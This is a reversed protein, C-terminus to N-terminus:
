GVIIGLAIILLCICWSKKYRKIKRDIFQLDENIYKDNQFINDIDNKNLVDKYSIKLRIYLDKFRQKEEYVEKLSFWMYICSLVLFVFSIIVIDKTFINNLKNSDLCNMIIITFFYTVFAIINNKFSKGLGEVLESSKQSMDFLFETVKNKVEIYKEVNEKLYISHASKISNFVNNSISCLKNNEIDLSIINRAIGIKDEINEESYVWKYINYYDLMIDTDISKFDINDEIFKYGNLTYKVHNKNKINSINCIYILSFLICLKDFTSNFVTNDSRKILYFDEPCFKYESANLFSCSMDRKNIKTYKDVYRINVDRLRKGEDLFYITSTHFSFKDNQLRLYLSKNNSLKGLDFLIGCLNSNNLYNIFESLLYISINNSSDINKIIKLKFNYKFDEGSEISEQINNIFEEADDEEIFYAVSYEDSFIEISFRDRKNIQKIVSKFEEYTPLHLENCIVNVEVEGFTEKEQKDKMDYIFLDLIDNIFNM